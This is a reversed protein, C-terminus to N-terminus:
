GTRDAMWLRGATRREGVGLAGPRVLPPSTLSVLLHTLTIPSLCGSVSALVRSVLKTKLM